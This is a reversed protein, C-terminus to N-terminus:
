FHEKLQEQVDQLHGQHDQVQDEMPTTQNGQTTPLKGNTKMWKEKAQLTQAQRGTAREVTANSYPTGPTRTTL